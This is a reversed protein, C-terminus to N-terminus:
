KGLVEVATNFYNLRSEFGTLGGNIAKTVAKLEGMEAAQNLPVVSGDPLTAPHNNWFWTAVKFGVDPTAVLEPNNELDIGLDQGARAYNGRGTLQIPGRGIYRYGDGPQTNGLEQSTNTYPYPVGDFSNPPFTVGAYEPGYMHTADSESRIETWFNLEGSEEGFTALFAGRSEPSQMGAGRMADSLPGAYRQADEPSLNPYIQHLQEPTILAPEPPAPAKALLENPDIFRPTVGQGGPDGGVDGPGNTAVEWGVMEAPAEGVAETPMGGAGMSSVSNVAGAGQSTLQAGQGVLDTVQSAQDNLATFQAAEDKLQPNADGVAQAVQDAQGQATKVIQSGSNVADATGQVGQAVGQVITVADMPNVAGSQASSAISAGAQAASGFGQAAQGASAALNSGDSVYNTVDGPLSQAARVGDQVLAQTDPGQQGQKRRRTSAAGMLLAALDNNGSQQDRDQQDKDRERDEGQEPMRPLKQNNNQQKQNQLQKTLDDIRQREQSSQRQQDQLQRTLDDIRQSDSQQPQQNTQQGPNQQPQQPAQQPQQAPQQPAQNGSQSGPNPQAGQNGPFDPNPRGPGQTLGPTATQYNPPSWEGNRAQWSGDPNARFPPEQMSQQGGTQSPVQQAAPNENYISIGSNQDMPPRGYNGSSYDPMSQGGQSPPQFMQGGGPIGGDGGGGCDPPCAAHAQPVTAPTFWGLGLGGASFALVAVVAATAAAKQSAATAWTYLGSLGHWWGLNSGVAWILVAAIAGVAPLANTGVITPALTPTLWATLIVLGAGGAILAATLAPHSASDHGPRATRDHESLLGAEALAEKALGFLYRGGSLLAAGAAVAVLMQGVGLMLSWAAEGSVQQWWMSYGGRFTFWMGVAGVIVGGAAAVAYAPESLREKAAGFVAATVPRAGWMALKIGGGLCSFWLLLPGAWMALDGMSDGARYLGHLGAVAAVLLAAGAIVGSARRGASSQDGHTATPATDGSPESPAALDRCDTVAVPWTADPAAHRAPTSM